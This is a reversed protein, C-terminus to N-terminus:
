SKVNKLRMKWDGIIDLHMLAFTRENKKLQQCKEVRESKKLQRELKRQQKKLKEEEIKIEELLVQEIQKKNELQWKEYADLKEQYRRLSEAYEEETEYRQYILYIQNEDYSGMDEIMVDQPDPKGINDYWSLLVQFDLANNVSQEFRRLAREPKEPKTKMTFSM